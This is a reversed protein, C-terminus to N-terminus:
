HDILEFTGAGTGEGDISSEVTYTGHPCPSCTSEGTSTANWEDLVTGDPALIGRRDDVGPGARALAM